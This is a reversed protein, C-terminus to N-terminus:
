VEPVTDNMLAEFGFSFRHNTKRSTRRSDKSRTRTAIREYLPVYSESLDAFEDIFGSKEGSSQNEQYRDSKAQISVDRNITEVNEITGGCIAKEDAFTQVDKTVNYQFVKRSCIDDIIESVNLDHDDNDTLFDDPSLENFMRDLTDNCRSNINELQLVKNIQPGRKKKNNGKQGERSGTKKSRKPSITLSEFSEELSAPPNKSIFEDIKRNNEVDDLINKEKKKQRRKEAKREGNDEANRTKKKTKRKKANKANEFVEVLEPYCKQVADQPEISTLEILDDVDDDDDSKENAAVRERLEEVIYHNNNWIIEYSAVCRINRIKKITDPVFLDPMLVRHSISINPLHVVQWRTALPFIKEFAYQPEWSLHKEMFKIFKSIQPQKWQIDVKTPVPDKRYSDNCKVVTGCDICGSKTHKQVKGSHGCSTCLNPNSLEKEVLDLTKDTKWSKLRELVNKDEVLKFFKMAAEKGIGNLGEDYDCGCLLALAIMKNRGLGLVREIKELSYEDVAGGSGGRNGQASTCFNRYVVKAGYLFCDSDQSICGDVLGDENLYACMAEAEGHGQVCALGMYDLMEKCEKLIRNFYTRGRRHVTNREQNGSRINNRKAITNHKLTPAKGELVFVPSIEHMLLFATRFYLNRLYMKPQMSPDTITQSDVIWCSIDIAITKGQLEFLPKRDCLPSVINWLDKVGM